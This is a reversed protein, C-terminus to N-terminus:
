CHPPISSVHRIAYPTGRVYLVAYRFLDAKHAGGLHGFTTAVIPHYHQELFKVCEDDNFVFREYGPAYKALNEAVKPPVKDPHHYTQYIVKPIDTGASFSVPLPLPLLDATTLNTTLTAGAGVAARPGTTDTTNTAAAPRLIDQLSIITGEVTKIKRQEHKPCYDKGWALLTYMVLTPISFIGIAFFGL